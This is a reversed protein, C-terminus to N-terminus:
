KSCKVLRAIRLRITERELRYKKRREKQAALGTASFTTRIQQQFNIKGTGAGVTLGKQREKRMTDLLHTVQIRTKTRGIQGDKRDESRGALEQTANGARDQAGQAQAQHESRSVRGVAEM